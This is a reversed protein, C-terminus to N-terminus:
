QMLIIITVATLFCIVLNMRFSAADVLMIGFFACCGLIQLFAWEFVSINQRAVQHRRDVIPGTSVVTEHIQKINHVALQVVEKSLGAKSLEEQVDHLMPLIAQMGPLLDEHPRNPDGFLDDLISLMAERCHKAIELKVREPIVTDPTALAMRMVMKAASTEQNVYEDLKTSREQVSQYTFGFFIAYVM